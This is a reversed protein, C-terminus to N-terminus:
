WSWSVMTYLGLEGTVAPGHSMKTCILSFIGEKPLHLGAPVCRILYTIGKYLNAFTTVADPGLLGVALIHVKAFLIHAPGWRGSAKAPPWTCACNASYM